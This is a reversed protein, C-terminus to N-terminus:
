SRKEFCKWFSDKYTGALPVYDGNTLNILKERSYNEVYDVNVIYSRHTRVFPYFGDCLQEELEKLKRHIRIKEKPYLHLYSHRDDAQCFIIYEPDLFRITIPNDPDQNSVPVAIKQFRPRNAKSEQQIKFVAKNVSAKLQDVKIPKLLYDLADAKIAKIAYQDYATTFIVEFSFPKINALVDFGSLDGMRVDLFILQPQHEYIHAIAENVTTSSAVIDINPCHVSLKRYLNRQAFPEDEVILGKIREIQIKSM